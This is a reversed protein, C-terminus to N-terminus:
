LVLRAGTRRQADELVRIITRATGEADIAGNVVISINSAAGGSRQPNPQFDLVGSMAGNSLNKMSELGQVYGEVTQHGMQEFVLSPSEIKLLARAADIANGISGTVAEKLRDAADLVGEKMGDMIDGGFTKMRDILSEVSDMVRDPLEEFWPKMLEWIEKIGNWMHTIPNNESVYNWSEVTASIVAVKMGIWADKIVAGLIIIAAQFKDIHTIAFAISGVIAIGVLVWPNM